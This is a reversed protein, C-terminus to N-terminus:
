PEENKGWKAFAIWKQLRRKPNPESHVYRWRDSVDASYIAQDQFIKPVKEPFDSIWILLLPGIIPIVALVSLSIKFFLHEDSRWLRWVLWIAVLESLVIVLIKITVSEM